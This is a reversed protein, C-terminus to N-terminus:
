RFLLLDNLTLNICGLIRDKNGDASLVLNENIIDGSKKVCNRESDSVLQVAQSWSVADRGVEPLGPPLGTLRFNKMNLNGLMEGGTKSIRANNDFYVNNAADHDNAPSSANTFTNGTMNITGVATNTGDRRLFTDNMQSFSVVATTENVLGM